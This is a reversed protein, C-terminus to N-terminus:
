EKAVEDHDLQQLRCQRVEDPSKSTKGSGVKTEDESVFLNHDDDNEDDYDQDAPAQVPQLWDAGHHREADPNTVAARHGDSSGSDYKVKKVEAHTEHSSARRKYASSVYVAKGVTRSRHPCLKIRNRITADGDKTRCFQHVRRLRSFGRMNDDGATLEPLARPKNKNMHRGHHKPLDNLHRDVAAVFDDPGRVRNGEGAGAPNGRANIKVNKDPSEMSCRVNAPSECGLQFDVDARCQTDTGDATV